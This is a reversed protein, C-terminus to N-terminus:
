QSASTESILAEKLKRSLRKIRYEERSAQARTGIKREYVLRLPTRGRLYKACKPGQSQHDTVRRTVNNSIGCYLSDDGCRILYVSWLSNRAM